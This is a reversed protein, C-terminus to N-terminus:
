QFFNRTEEVTQLFREVDDATNYIYFSARAMASVGFHKMILSACHQGSRIAMKKSDFFTAADHSHVGDINFSLIPLRNDRPGYVEIGKMHVLKDFAQRVLGAIYKEIERRGLSEIYDIAANLGIVAPINQTGAEFKWPPDAWTSQTYDVSHIMSGGFYVPDMEELLHQKAYLIGIGMPGMMKHGSFAYFDVDLERVNVAAHPVYQCGDVVVLAGVSHAAEIIPELDVLAATVNSGQTVAVLRTKPTLQQYFSQMDLEGQPTMGALKLTAGTRQAAVQWPVLNSHHELTTTLIGDGPKLFKHAWGYAVMNLSETAGRTFVIESQDAGIFQAARLRACEYGATAKEALRYASRHINSNYEENFRDTAELVMHPRQATSASDLYVLGENEPHDFVRFDKKVKKLDVTPPTEIIM